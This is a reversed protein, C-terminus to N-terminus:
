IPRRWSSNEMRLIGTVTTPKARSARYAETGSFKISTPTRPPPYERSKPARSGRRAPSRLSRRHGPCPMRLPRHQEPQGFVQPQPDAGSPRHRRPQPVQGHHLLRVPQQALRRGAGAVARCRVRHLHEGRQQGLDASLAFAHDDGLLDRGLENGVDDLVGSDLDDVPQGSGIVQLGDAGGPGERWLRRTLLVASVILRPDFDEWIEFLAVISRPNSSDKRDGKRASAVAQALLEAWASLTINDLLEIRDRSFTSTQINSRSLNLWHEVGDKFASELVERGIGLVDLRDRLVAATATWRVMEGTEYENDSLRPTRHLNESTFLSLFTPDVEEYWTYVEVGHLYISAYDSMVDTDHLERLQELSDPAFAPALFGELQGQPV